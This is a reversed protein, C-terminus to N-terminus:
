NDSAKYQFKSDQTCDGTSLETVNLDAKFELDFIIVSYILVLKVLGWYLRSFVM